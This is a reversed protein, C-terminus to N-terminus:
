GRHVGAQRRLAEFWAAQSQPRAFLFGQFEDIGLARLIEFQSASEVGEAVMTLGVGSCLQVIGELMQRSRTDTTLDNVFSRDIKVKHFPLRRLHSLSSYGTGFDDLALLFGRDRLRRLLQEVVAIDTVLASETLELELWGPECSESACAEDIIQEFDPRLLQRPSLNVAVTATSGRERVERSVRAAARLAQRGMRDILGLQEAIPIFEAPSVAGIAPPSWRMLLEAGVHTGAADVKPQLVFSFADRAADVRLLAQLRARRRVQADLEASFVVLQGRGADKAAYMSVDARRILTQADSGHEPHWVGGLSPTVHLPHGDITCSRSVARLLVAAIERLEREGSGPHGLIAFEDGGWRAVFQEPLAASLRRGVERLLLDGVGHGLSDNISKFGDLDMFLLAFPEGAALRRDLEADLAGRNPLGTLPDERALRKLERDQRQRESIDRLVIIHCRGQGAREAVSTVSVSV